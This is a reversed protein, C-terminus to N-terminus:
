QFQSLDFAYLYGDTSAVLLVGRDADVVPKFLADPIVGDEEPKFLFPVSASWVTISEYDDLDAEWGQLIPRTVRGDRTWGSIFVAVADDAKSNPLIAPATLIDTPDFRRESLKTDDFGRGEDYEFRAIEGIDSTLYIVADDDTSTLSMGVISRLTIGDYDKEACTSGTSTAGLAYVGGSEAGFFLTTRTGNLHLSTSIRDQVDFSCATGTQRIGYITEDAAIWVVGTASDYCPATTVPKYQSYSRDTSGNVTDLVYAGSGSGVILKSGDESLVLYTTPTELAPDLETAINGASQWLATFFPEDEKEEGQLAYIRGDSSGIYVRYTHADDDYYVVPASLTGGGDPVWNAKNEGTRVRLAHLRDGGTTSVVHFVLGGAVVPAVRVGEVDTVDDCRCHTRAPFTWLDASSYFYSLHFQDPLFVDRTSVGGTPNLSVRLQVPNARGLADGDDGATKSPEFLRNFIDYKLQVLILGEDGPDGVSAIKGLQVPEGSADKVLPEFEDAPAVLDLRYYGWVELDSSSLSVTGVNHVDIGWSTQLDGMRCVPFVDALTLESIERGSRLLTLKYIDEQRDAADACEGLPAINNCRSVDGLSDAADAEASFVYIGPAFASTDITVVPRREEGVALELVTQTGIKGHEGSITETFFFDIDFQGVSVTGLNKVKASVRITDGVLAQDLMLSRAGSSAQEVWGVHLSLIGIDIGDTAQGGAVLGAFVIMLLPLTGRGIRMRLWRLSRLGCSPVEWLM